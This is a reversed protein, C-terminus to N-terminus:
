IMGEQIIDNVMMRPNMSSFPDQFIIQFHKRQQRLADGTLNSLEHGLFQVSGSTPKNLQLIAKGFTTKGCGSEGVLAVTQGTKITMDVGDVAYVYGAVHKLLGKHIPFHVKLNTVQLLEGAEHASRERDSIGKEELSKQVQAQEDFLFCRVGHDNTQVQWRPVNNECYDTAHHCRPAFRCGMFQERMTPVTGPIVALAQDRKAMSPLADFLKQSYPHEPQSFFLDRSASEVIQGAYMVAVHDVMKSVVGLDHTILLVAMGTKQQLEKLLDLVQAQITVDLATTPEDAILLEPEGALAMAIMVRQKMGGSLQHPYEDVRQTPEPIGVQELLEICRQRAPQGVLSKHSKLVEGIQTGVTLVPNLSTMPEQFIMAIRNGRIKRMASEPYTLLDENDFVVEGGMNKNAQEPLLQMISLATMSKGCGSEGLLAFTEGKRIQFSVGDLIQVKGAQTDFATSLNKVDLLIESM